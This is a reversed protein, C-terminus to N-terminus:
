LTRLFLLLKKENTVPVNDINHQMMEYSLDLRGIDDVFAAVDFASLPSPGKVLSLRILDGVEATCTLVRLGKRHGTDLYTSDIEYLLYHRDNAGDAASWKYEILMMYPTAFSYKVLKYNVDGINFSVLM